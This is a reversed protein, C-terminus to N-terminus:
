ETEEVLYITNHKSAGSNKKTEKIDSNLTAGQSGAAKEKVIQEM